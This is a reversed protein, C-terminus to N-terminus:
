QSPLNSVSVIWELINRYSSIVESLKMSFGGGGGWRGGKNKNDYASSHDTIIALSQKQDTGYGTMAYIVCTIYNGECHDHFNQLAGYDLHYCLQCTIHHHRQQSLRSIVPKRKTGRPILEM